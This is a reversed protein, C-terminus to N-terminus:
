FELVVKCCETPHQDALQFADIARAFPFTHTVMAEVIDPHEAVYRIVEPYHGLNNRSGYLTLEKKTMDVGRLSFKKTTVGVIVVRGAAAVLDVAAEITAPQGVAEVVVSPGDGDAWKRLTQQWGKNQSNVTFDAGLQAALQLRSNILDTMAVQAGREKAACLITLGIPGAGLIVVRDAETVEGRSVGQFGISFPEVLSALRFPFGDPVAYLSRAPAVFREAMAGMLSIGIMRTETCCNGRGVRCAVCKGCPILPEVVVRDGPAVDTVDPAVERVVGAAEHGYVMPYRTYPHDGRYLHIDSGCISAAATEVLVEGSGPVPEPREEFFQTRPATTNLVLM